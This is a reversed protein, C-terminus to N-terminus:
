DTLVATLDHVLIRDFHFGIVGGVPTATALGLRQLMRYVHALRQQDRPQQRLKRSRDPEPRWHLLDSTLPHFEAPEPRRPDTVKHNVVIVPIYGGAVDRLLIEAGGRRGTDPEQPLLGGWIRAAGAACARLTADARARAPQAPDIIVWSDPDEAVRTDRVRDRHAKAAGRRQQVGPEERVEALQEPYTADLGL